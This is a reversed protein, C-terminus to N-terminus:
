LLHGYLQNFRNSFETGLNELEAFAQVHCVSPIIKYPFNDAMKKNILYDNIPSIEMWPKPLTKLMQMNYIATSCHSETISIGIKWNSFDLHQKRSVGLTQGMVMGMGPAADLLHKLGWPLLCDDDPNVLVWNDWNMNEFAHKIPISPNGQPIDDFIRIRDGWKELDLQNTLEPYSGGMLINIRSNVGSHLAAYIQYLCNETKKKATPILVDIDFVM